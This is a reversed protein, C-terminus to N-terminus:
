KAPIRPDKRIAKYESIKNDKISEVMFSDLININFAMSHKNWLLSSHQSSLSFHRMCIKKMDVLFPFVVGITMSDM